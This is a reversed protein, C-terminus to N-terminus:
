CNKIELFSNETMMEALYSNKETVMLLSALTVIKHLKVFTEAVLDTGSMAPPVSGEEKEAM